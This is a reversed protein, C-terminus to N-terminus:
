AKWTKYVEWVLKELRGQQETLRKSRSAVDEASKSIRQRRAIKAVAPKRLLKSSCGNTNNTISPLSARYMPLAERQLQEVRKRKEEM